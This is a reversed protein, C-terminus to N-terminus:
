QLQLEIEYKNTKIQWKYINSKYAIMFSIRASAFAATNIWLCNIEAEECQTIYINQLPSVGLFSGAKTSFFGTGDLKKNQM